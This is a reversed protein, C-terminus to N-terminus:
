EEEDHLIVPHIMPLNMWKKEEKSVSGFRMFGGSSKAIHHAFSKLSEYLQYSLRNEFLPLIDNLQSLFNVIRTERDRLDEPLQKLLGYLQDHFGLELDQYYQNLEEPEAYSRIHTLKEAWNLEQNDINGDAGAILLTIYAPAEKLLQYQRDSLEASFARESM